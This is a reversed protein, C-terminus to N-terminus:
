REGPPLPLHASEKLRAPQFTKVAIKTRVQELWLVGDFNGSNGRTTVFDTDGDGDMDRPIFLDYMGRKRRAIDNCIWPRAPDGPHAFWCLRGVTSAATIKDGDHDRPQQSYGGTIIDPRGDDNIDAVALGASSDPAVSGIKHITWPKAFDDPQELWVIRPPTEQLLIDLRGDANFDHFAVSIGSLHRGGGSQPVSRGTVEILHEIFKLPTGGRNELWLTRGDYRSGGLIDLDGDGDLDVPRANMPIRVQTLVHERWLDGHLPDKPLRFMSIAKPAYTKPAPGGGGALQHGKNAASVEPRGDGDYDAFFVRIWSGRDATIKPIVRPWQGGRVNKGPNQFYILHALECAAVIDLWGDGNADAISVDEAAKAEDGEALTVLHWQDPNASGFALRLHHNDEHVSVIDLYGDKDLDAMQLGDAGRLVVGGSLQQDDVLHEKWAIYEGAPTRARTLTDAVSIPGEARAEPPVAWASCLTVFAIAAARCRCILLRSIDMM